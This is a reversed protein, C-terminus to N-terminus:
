SRMMGVAQVRPLPGECNLFYKAGRVTSSTLARGDQEAEITLRIYMPSTQYGRTIWVAILILFPISWLLAVKERSLPLGKRGMSQYLGM